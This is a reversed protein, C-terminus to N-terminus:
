LGRAAARAVAPRVPGIVTYTVGGSTFRVFTGLATDLEQAITGKVQFTPLSIGHAGEGSGSTLNIRQASTASAPEEIVAVGGLNPGYVVLAGSHGARGLLAVSQRALRAVRNPAALRFSLHRAVATVGAVQASRGHKGKPESPSSAAAPTAVHVVSYGAPPSLDFVSPDVTSYSVNTAALELVPGSHDGRAYVAFRLPVGKLADWALQAQGILGAGQKPSVRVTYTAQGGVDTPLAGSVTLHQALRDLNSQIQTVSPLNDSGHPKAAANGAPLSGEYVTRLTPDSIWWSSKSVVVAPDGNDGYLELRFRGDASIWVHGQGGNLLPDSGLIESSPILRNTFNVDASFGQVQPAALADRIAVALRKQKPVPASGQAAIAIATGGAIAILFGAITALLRQTSATRVFKNV